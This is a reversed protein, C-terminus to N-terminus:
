QHEPKPFRPRHRDIPALVDYSLEPRKILEALTVGTTLETSGNEVLLAENIRDRVLLAEKSYPMKGSSLEAILSELEAITTELEKIHTRFDADKDKITERIANLASRAARIESLHEEETAEVDELIKEDWECVIGSRSLKKGLAKLESLLTEYIAAQKCYTEYSSKRSENEKQLATLEKNDEDDEAAKKAQYM